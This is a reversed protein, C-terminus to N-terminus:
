SDPEGVQLTSLHRLVLRPYGGLYTTKFRPEGNLTHAVAELQETIKRRRVHPFSGKDFPEPTWNITRPLKAIPAGDLNPDYGQAPM